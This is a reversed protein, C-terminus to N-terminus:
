VVRDRGQDALYRSCLYRVIPLDADPLDAAVLSGPMRWALPQGERSCPVGQYAHVMWTDLVVRRDPYRHRVVMLPRADTVVIGLEECLERDLAQRPSEGPHIKGGPFEWKGALHSGPRRRSVLVAGTPDCIIGVAVRVECEPDAATNPM